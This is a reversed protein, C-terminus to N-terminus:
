EEVSRAVFSEGCRWKGDLYELWVRGETDIAASPKEKTAEITKEQGSDWYIIKM